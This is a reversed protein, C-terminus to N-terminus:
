KQCKAVLHWKFGLVLSLKAASFQDEKRFCEVVKRKLMQKSCGDVPVGEM